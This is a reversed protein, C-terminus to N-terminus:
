FNVSNLDIEPVADCDKLHYYEDKSRCNENCYSVKKCGCTVKLVGYSYCGECKGYM